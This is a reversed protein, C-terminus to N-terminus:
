HSFSESSFHITSLELRSDFPPRVASIDSVFNANIYESGDVGEIPELRVATERFPLVDPYRCFSTFRVNALASTRRALFSGMSVGLRGLIQKLIGM